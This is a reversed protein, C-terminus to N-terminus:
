VARTSRTPAALNTDVQIAAPAVELSAPVCMSQFAPDDCLRYGDTTSPAKPETSRGASTACAALALTVTACLLRALTM